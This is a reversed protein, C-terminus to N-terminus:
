ILRESKAFPLLRSKERRAERAQELEEEIFM